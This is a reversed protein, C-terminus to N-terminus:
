KKIPEYVTGAFWVEGTSKDRIIYMYPKDFTIDITEVPVDYLHEFWCGAAGKGGMATVAAAKIGNNSFEINAMHKAKAIYQKTGGDLMKTLNAKNIDFVDKIGLKQLDTLLDLEYDFKFLPINGVIKTVVGDKFNESKIEKLNKIITNAKESDFGDVYNTLEVTKPMIGVYQLTTGNYEQLDKAFAKIEEDDYIYFDSSVDVKHYNSGLDKVFQDVYTNVDPNQEPGGCNGEDLWEQYEKSITNRINDEGLDSIIDYNNLSAGIKTSKINEIGNFTMAPYGDEGGISSVWDSYNEHDYEVSYEKCPIENTLQPNFNEDTCQLKNTWSMDIALANALVFNLEGVEDDQFLKDILKLTKESVWSNITNASQFSDTIVEAGFKTSLNDTYEKRISDKFSDRIFMANAFSMHENNDYKRAEYDGIVADLQARTEGDAGEALMELAYKISLPSYVKNKAENELKLFVLDFNELSNGSMRYEGKVEKVDVDAKKTEKKGSPNYFIFYCSGCALLLLLLILVVGGKKKKPKEDKLNLSNDNKEVEEVEETSIDKKEEEM